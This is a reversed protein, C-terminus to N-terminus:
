TANAIWKFIELYVVKTSERVENAEQEELLAKRTALERETFHHLDQNVGGLVNQM